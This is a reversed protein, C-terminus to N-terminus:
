PMLVGLGMGESVPLRTSVMGVLLGWFPLKMAMAYSFAGPASRSQRCQVGCRNACHPASM